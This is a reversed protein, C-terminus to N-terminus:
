RKKNDSDINKVLFNFKKNLKISIEEKGDTYASM